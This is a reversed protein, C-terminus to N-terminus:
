KNSAASFDVYLSINAVLPMKVPYNVSLVPQGSEHSVEIDKGAIVKINDMTAQRDFAARIQSTTGNQLEPNKAVSVLAKKILAFETYAPVIKMATVAGIVLIISWLLLGSLSLGYQKQIAGYRM